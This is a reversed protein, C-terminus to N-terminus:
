EDEGFEHHLRRISPFLVLGNMIKVGGGPPPPKGPLVAGVRVLERNLLELM